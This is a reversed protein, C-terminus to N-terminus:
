PHRGGARTRHGPRDAVGAQPGLRTQGVDRLHLAASQGTLSGRSRIIDVRWQFPARIQIPDAATEVWSEFEMRGHIHGSSRRVEPTGTLVMVAGSKRALRQLRVGRNNKFSPAGDLIVLGFSQSRLISEVCFFADQPTPPRLVWLRGPYEDVWDVAMLESGADIWAVAVGQRRVGRVLERLVGTKGCSRPGLWEFTQGGVMGEAGLLADLSAIGSYFSRRVPREVALQKRIAEVSIMREAYLSLYSLDSFPCIEGSVRHGCPEAPQGQVQHDNVWTSDTSPPCWSFM